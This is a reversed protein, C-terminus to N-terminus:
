RWLTQEVLIRGNGALRLLPSVLPGTPHMVEYIQRDAVPTANLAGNWTIISVAPVSVPLAPTVSLALPRSAASLAVKGRGELVLFELPSASGEDLRVYRPTLTEECALLHSPEVYIMEDDVHMLTIERDKDTLILRGRGTVIVLPPAAGSRREKVWFTLDGSYSYITGQKLFVKGAIEVELLHPELFRFSEGDASPPQDPSPRAAAPLAPPLPPSPSAPRAPWLEALPPGTAPRPAAVAVTAARPLANEAMLSPSVPQVPKPPALAVEPPRALAARVQSARFEATDTPRPGRQPPAPTPTPRPPPATAAIKDEVRRVMLNAGAQRYHFIADQFRRLREYVSGLCFSIKANSGSLDLAKLFASEAEELRNLKLYILGLNYSLTPEDSNQVVLKRYVEEAKEFKDQRFYALGLLNLVSPDRPRLLYAEELQAEAEGFDKRDYAEKARDFHTLFLDRDHQGGSSAEAM